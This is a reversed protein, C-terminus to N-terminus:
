TKEGKRKVKLWKKFAEKKDELYCSGNATKCPEPSAFGGFNKCYFCIGFEEEPSGYFFNALEDESMNKVYEFNTLEFDKEFVQEVSGPPMEEHLEKVKEKIYDKGSDITGTNAFREILILAAALAFDNETFGYEDLLTKVWEGGKESAMLGTTISNNNEFSSFAHHHLFGDLPKLIEVDTDMYIGGETYLAFLRVFDTVFAFKRNDYAQRVYLNSDLDFNEENWEKFTYDSLITKWSQICKEALENKLMSLTIGDLAM